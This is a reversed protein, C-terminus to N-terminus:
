LPSHFGWWNMFTLQSMKIEARELEHHKGAKPCDPDDILCCMELMKEFYQAWTSTTRCWRQYAGFKSFISVFGGAVYHICCCLFHVQCICQFSVMQLTMKTNVFVWRCVERVEYLDGGDDQWSCQPIRPNSFTSSCHWREQAVRWGWSSINWHKHPLCGVMSSISVM